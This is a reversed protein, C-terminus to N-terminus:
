IKAETRLFCSNWVQPGKTFVHTATVGLNPQSIYFWLLDEHCSRGFEHVLEVCCQKSIDQDELVAKVVMEGCAASIKKTCQEIAKYFGPKPEPPFTFKFGAAVVMSAAIMSSLFAVTISLNNNRNAM